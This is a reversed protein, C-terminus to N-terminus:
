PTSSVLTMGDPGKGAPHTDVVTMTALDIVSVTGGGSNAVFARRGDSSFAMGGPEVGVKVKATVSRTALDIAHVDGSARHSVLARRGDPTCAVRVPGEGVGVKGLTRLTATDIVHVDNDNRNAVVLLRGDPTLSIGEVGNGAPVQQLITWPETDVVTVRASGRATIYARRGDPSLVVMHSGDVGTALERSISMSAVDIAILLRKQESTLFVTAGAPHVALGHPFGFLPSSLRKVEKGSAMEVFSVTNSGPNAVIAHRGDRTVVVEHPNEGVPVSRTLRGTAADMFHLVHATKDAILLTDAAAVGTAGVTLGLVFTSALRTIM